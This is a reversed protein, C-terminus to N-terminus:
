IDEVMPQTISESKNNHNKKNRQKERRRKVNEQKKKLCVSEFSQLTGFENMYINTYIFEEGIWM